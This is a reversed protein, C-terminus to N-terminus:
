CILNCFKERNEHILLVEMSLVMLALLLGASNLFLHFAVINVVIPALLLLALMTYRNTVLMLGAAIQTLMIMPLMYGTAALAGLFAAAEGTPAELPIFNLFGNLGFAVFTLGLLYRAITCVNNMNM